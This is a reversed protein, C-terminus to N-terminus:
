FVNLLALHRTAITSDNIACHCHCHHCGLQSDAAPWLLKMKTLTCRHTSHELTYQAQTYMQSHCQSSWWCHQHPQRSHWSCVCLQTSTRGGWRNNCHHQLRVSLVSTYLSLKDTTSWVCHQHRSQCSNHSFTTSGSHRMHSIPQMLDALAKSCSM